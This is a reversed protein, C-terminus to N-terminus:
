KKFLKYANTKINSQCVVVSVLFYLVATYIANCFAVKFEVGWAGQMTPRAAIYELLLTIFFTVITAVGCMISWWKPTYKRGPLNNFPGYYYYALAIGIVLMAIVFSISANDLKRWFVTAQNYLTEDDRFPATFDNMTGALWSYIKLLKM